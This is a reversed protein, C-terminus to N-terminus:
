ALASLEDLAKASEDDTPVHTIMRTGLEANLWLTTTTFRLLGVYQNLVQMGSLDPAVSTGRRWRQEFDPSESRLRTLLAKWMTENRHATHGVRFQAVLRDANEPWDVVSRRWDPHCFTLIVLNRDGSPVGDLDGYLQAYTRNYALLDFRANEIVAPFPALQGLMAKVGTPLAFDASENLPDAVGALVFIYKRETHDLRLARSVGDLVAPSPRIPRGQELWTYWTTGVGALQAVEERRLGPTRRRKGDPLGVASPALRERRMRLFLGLEHRRHQDRREVNTM